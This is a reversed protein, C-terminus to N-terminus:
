TPLYKALEGVDLRRLQTKFGENPSICRRRSKVYARAQDFDLRDRTMFYSILVASSRSIGAACHVLVAKGQALRQDIFRIAEPLHEAINNDPLDNVRVYHYEIFPFRM